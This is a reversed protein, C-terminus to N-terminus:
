ANKYRENKDAQAQLKSIEADRDSIIRETRERLNKLQSYLGLGTVCTFTLVGIITWFSWNYEQHKGFESLVGFFAAVHALSGVPVFVKHFFKNFKSEEEMTKLIM